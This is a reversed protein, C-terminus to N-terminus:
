WCLKHGRFHFRYNRLLQTIVDGVLNDHDHQEEDLELSVIIHDRITRLLLHDVGKDAAELALALVNQVGRQCLAHSNIDTRSKIEEVISYTKTDGM